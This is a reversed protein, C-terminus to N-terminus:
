EAEMPQEYQFRTLQAAFARIVTRRLVALEPLLTRPLDFLIRSSCSWIMSVDRSNDRRLKAIHPAAPNSAVPM